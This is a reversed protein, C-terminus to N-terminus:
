GHYFPLLYQLLRLVDITFSSPLSVKVFPATADEFHLCSDLAELDSAPDANRIESRPRLNASRAAYRVPITQHTDSIAM